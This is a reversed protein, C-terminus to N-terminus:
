KSEPQTHPHELNDMITRLTKFFTGVQRDSLGRTAAARVRKACTIVNEWVEGANDSVQIVKKRRDSPTAKRKIMGDREMRDLVGVLTAPEIMMRDALEVQSLEGDLVLWGLVQAQRYTLRYPALEVEIAKQYARATLILWYGVSQEFDYSRLTGAAAATQKTVASM